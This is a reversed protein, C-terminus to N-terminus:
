GQLAAQLTNLDYDIINTIYQAPTYPAIHQRFTVNGSLIETIPNDDALYEIYAGAWYEPAYAACRINETDVITDILRRNMPDDVKDFYSLIFTNGQWNFMRRVAIWIDKADTSSPYAATYNGWSRWGNINLATVVGFSNVTNAQDQDLYVETGDALCAGTVGMMENSPSKYPVNNNNADTYETLAAMVSSYPFMYAGVKLRPWLVECFPGSLGSAEKATKVDTYTKAAVTSLDVLAMAKFCGNISQAKASLAIAVNADESYNPALLQGPVIGLKPYVQRIVEMGTEAGTVANVSGIVDNPTVGAPNIAKGSIKLATASAHTSTSILTIVLYGDDDFTVTYDTDKALTDDGDKVVVTSLLVGKSEKYVVEGDVVTITAETLTKTHTAKSPDLVNIYVVPSTCFVNNTLYMVGCLGFSAFDDSYGLKTMAEAPSNALVPTNVVAAPDALLNIPACGLVVPIASEAVIPVSIATPSEIIGIGHKISM